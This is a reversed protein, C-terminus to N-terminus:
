ESFFYLESNSYHFREGPTFELPSDRFHDIFDLPAGVPERMHAQYGTEDTFSRIGSTHTLLHHITIGNWAAPASPIYKAIPDTVRLKGKEQLQLIAAATFQKTISGLRFKTEPTNPVDLEINALGYGKALVVKGGKALLVSGQIGAAKIYADARAAVDPTTQSIGAGTVALVVFIANRASVCNLTRWNRLQNTLYGFRGILGSPTLQLASSSSNNNVHAM